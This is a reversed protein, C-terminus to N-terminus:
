RAPRTRLPAWGPRVPSRGISPATQPATAPQSTQAAVAMQQRGARVLAVSLGFILPFMFKYAVSSFFSTVAFSTLALFLARAMDAIDAFRKDRKADKELKSVSRFCTIVVALYLILGPIGTESSVQTYANHTELWMAREGRQDSLHKAAVQFVGPGVGFLPNRATLELSMFLLQKRSRSSEMASLNHAMSQADEESEAVQVEEKSNFITTYRQLTTRPLVLLAILFTGLLGSIILLRHLASARLFFLFAMIALAVLASRSGSGIVALLLIGLCALACCSKFLGRGWLMASLPLAFLLMQAMDNSNAFLGVPLALRGGPRYNKVLALAAVLTTSFLVALIIRRCNALTVTLGAMLLFCTFARSWDEKLLMFSGGKWTSLPTILIMWFTFLFLLKAPTTSSARRLGGSLLMLVLATTGFLLPLHLRGLYLDSLRSCTFFVFGQLM